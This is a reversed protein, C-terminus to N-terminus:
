FSIFIIFYCYLIFYIGIKKKIKAEKNIKSKKNYALLCFSCIVVNLNLVYKLKLFFYIYFLHINSNNACLKKLKNEYDIQFKEM